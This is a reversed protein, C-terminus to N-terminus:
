ENILKSKLEIIFSEFDLNYKKIEHLKKTFLKYKDHIKNKLSTSRLADPTMMM